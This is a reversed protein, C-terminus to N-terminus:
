ENNSRGLAKLAYWIVLATVAVAVLADVGPVDAL